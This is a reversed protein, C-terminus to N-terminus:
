AMFRYHNNQATNQWYLQRYWWLGIIVTLISNKDL